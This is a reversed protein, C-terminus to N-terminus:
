RSSRRARGGAARGGAAPDPRERHPRGDGADARGDPDPGLARAEWAELAAQATRWWSPSSASSAAAPDQAGAPQGRQGGGGAGAPRPERGRGPRPPGRRRRRPGAGVGSWAATRRHLALGPRSPEGRVHDRRGDARRARPLDGPGPRHRRLPAHHLHRGPRVERVAAAPGDPAIGIGTDRVALRCGRSTPMSPAVRIEGQARHVEPRQLDPQLPDPPHPQPRRPLRAQAPRSTWTSARPGKTPSRPSPPMPARAGGREPRVRRSELELKGAEIKSLDLIDNLIALLAEGSQRIM